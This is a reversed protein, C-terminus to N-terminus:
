PTVTLAARQGAAYHGPLNCLLAYRGPALQAEARHRNGPPIHGPHRAEGAHDHGHAQGIVLQGARDYQVGQLGVPLRDAPLNTRIVVLEHEQSGVNRALFAVPGAPVERRDAQLEGDDLTLAVTVPAPDGSAGALVLNGVTVVAVVALLCALAVRTM